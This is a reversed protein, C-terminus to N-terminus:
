VPLELRELIEAAIAEVDQNVDIVIADPPEELAEFQSRLMSAKMYHEERVRMRQFILDFDGKLHVFITGENGDALLDRYSQKLASCALILSCGDQLHDSIINHLIRLWPIRDQDNLPIGAAMKAINGEPHYDDGDFFPSGLIQSLREGIVTKGSGSVGMLVLAFPHTRLSNVM